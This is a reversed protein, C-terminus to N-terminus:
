ADTSSDFMDVCIERECKTGHSCNDHQKEIVDHVMLMRRPLRRGSTQTHEEGRGLISAASVWSVFGKM